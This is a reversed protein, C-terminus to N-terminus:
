SVHGREGSARWQVSGGDHMTETTKRKTEDQSNEKDRTCGGLVLQLHEDDVALVVM